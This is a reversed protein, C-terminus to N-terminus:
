CFPNFDIFSVYNVGKRFSLNNKNISSLFFKELNRGQSM